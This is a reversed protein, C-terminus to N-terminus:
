LAPVEVIEVQAAAARAREADRRPRVLQRGADGGLWAERLVYEDGYREFVLMPQVNGQKRLGNTPAFVGGRIGSIALAGATVETSVHYLGPPLTKGSVTFSFPVKCRMQAAEAPIAVVAMAIAVGLAAAGGFAGRKTM